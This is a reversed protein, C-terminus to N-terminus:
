EEWSTYALAEVDAMPELNEVHTNGMVPPGEELVVFDAYLGFGYPSVDLGVIRVPREREANWVLGASNGKRRAQRSSYMTDVPLWAVDGERLM